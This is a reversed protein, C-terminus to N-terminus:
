SFASHSGRTLGSIFRIPVYLDSKACDSVKTNVAFKSIHNSLVAPAWCAQDEKFHKIANLREVSSCYKNVQSLCSDKFLNLRPLHQGLVAAQVFKTLVDPPNHHTGVKELSIISKRLADQIWLHRLQIHKSKRSIGLRSAMTKTASSDTKVIIKVHRSFLKSSFEQIFHKLALSEVSAQTM